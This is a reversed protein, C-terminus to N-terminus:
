LTIITEHKDLLTLQFNYKLIPPRLGGHQYRITASYFAQSIRHLQSMRCPWVSARCRKKFSMLSSSPSITAGILAFRFLCPSLGESTHPRLNNLKGFNLRFYINYFVVGRNLIIETSQKEKFMVPPVVIYISGLYFM